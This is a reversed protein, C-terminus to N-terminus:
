QQVVKMETCKNNELKDQKNMLTENNEIRFILGCIIKKVFIDAIYGASKV